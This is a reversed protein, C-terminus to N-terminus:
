GPIPVDNAGASPAILWLGVRVLWGGVRRRVPRLLATRPERRYERAQRRLAQAALEREREQLILWLLTQDHPM